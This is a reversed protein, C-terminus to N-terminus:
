ERQYWTDEPLYFIIDQNITLPLNENKVQLEVHYEGDEVYEFNVNSKHESSNCFKYNKSPDIVCLQYLNNKNNGNENTLIFSYISSSNKQITFDDINLDNYHNLMNQNVPLKFEESIFEGLEVTARLSGLYSVHNTDAYHLISFDLNRLDFYPIAYEKSLSNYDVTRKPSNLFYRIEPMSFLLLESSHQTCLDIIKEFYFLTEDDLENYLDANPVDNIRNITEKNIPNNRPLYGDNILFKTLEYNDKHLIYYNFNYFLYEPTKWIKEHSRSLDFYDYNTSLSFDDQSTIVNLVNRNIPIAGWFFYIAGDENTLNVDISYTELAVYQPSQTRFAEVLQFYTNKLSESPVGITFGKLGLTDEIVQPIVGQMNHSNGIYLIDISNKEIKKFQYWRYERIELRVSLNLLILVFGVLLLFFLFIISKNKTGITEGM